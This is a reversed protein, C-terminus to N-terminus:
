DAHRTFWQTLVLRLARNDTVEFLTFGEHPCPIERHDLDYGCTPDFPFDHRLDSDSM